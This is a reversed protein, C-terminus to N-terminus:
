RKPRRRKKVIRRRKRMSVDYVSTKRLFDQEAAIVKKWQDHALCPHEDSCQRNGFPCRQVAFHEFPTLVDLLRVTKSSRSMRFGGCKGRASSLIGVRVLDGLVKALYKAPIGTAAAIQKGPIPWDDSHQALHIMARLAYEGTRSLM